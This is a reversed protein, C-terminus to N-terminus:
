KARLLVSEAVVGRTYEVVGRVESSTPELLEMTDYIISKNPGQRKFYRFVAVLYHAGEWSVQDVVYETGEIREQALVCDNSSGTLNRCNLIKDVHPKLDDLTAQCRRVNDSGASDVPKVICESLEQDRCWAEVESATACLQCPINRLRSPAARLREAMRYKNRRWSSTSPNNGVCGLESALEDAVVVGTECGAVVIAPRSANALRQRDAEVAWHFTQEFDNPNFSKFLKPNVHEHSLVAYRRVGPRLKRFESAYRNGSSFPDVVFVSPTM